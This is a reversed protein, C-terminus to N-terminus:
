NCSQPAATVAILSPVLCGPWEHFRQCLSRWVNDSSSPNGHPLATAAKADEINVRYLVGIAPGDCGNRLRDEYLKQVSEAQGMMIFPRVVAATPRAPTNDDSACLRQGVFPCRRFANVDALWDAVTQEVM